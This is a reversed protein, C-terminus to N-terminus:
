IEQASKSSTPTLTPKLTPAATPPNSIVSSTINLTGDFVAQIIGNSNDQVSQTLSGDKLMADLAATANNAMETGCGDCNTSVVIMANVSSAANQLRRGSPYPSHDAVTEGCIEYVYVTELGGVNPDM